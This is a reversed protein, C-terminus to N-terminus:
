SVLYLHGDAEGEGGHQVMVPMVWILKRLARKEGFPQRRWHGRRWHPRARRGSSRGHRNRRASLTTGERLATAIARFREDLEPMQM